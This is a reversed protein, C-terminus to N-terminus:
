LRAEFLQFKAPHTERSRIEKLLRPKFGQERLLKRLLSLHGLTSSFGVLLRGGPKLHRRAGLVFKTTSRYGPDFVARELLSINKRRVYGFPTNWFIVDFKQKRGLPVYVDGLYVHFRERKAVRHLRANERTNRVATPNVDVAVVRRAGRIAALVSIIGTGSGIELFDEGPNVRVHRAFFKTDRFYKPSFVGPFVVFKKGEVRVRYPKKERESLNLIRRTGALYKTKERKVRRAVVKLTVSAILESGLPSIDASQGVLAVVAVFLM